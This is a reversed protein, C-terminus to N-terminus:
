TTFKKEGVIGHLNVVSPYLRPLHLCIGSISVLSFELAMQTGRLGLHVIGDRMVAADLVFPCLIESMASSLVTCAPWADFHQLDNLDLKIVDDFTGGGM